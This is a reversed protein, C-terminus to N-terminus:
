GDLRRPAGPARARDRNLGDDSRRDLRVVGEITLGRDSCEKLVRELGAQTAEIRLLTQSRAVAHPCGLRHLTPATLEGEVRVEFSTAM